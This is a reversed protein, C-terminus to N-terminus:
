LARMRPYCPPCQAVDAYGPDDMSRRGNALEVLEDESCCGLRNANPHAFGFVIDIQDEARFGEPGERLWERPLNM